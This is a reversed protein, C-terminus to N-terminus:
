GSTALGLLAQRVMAVAPNHGPGDIREIMVLEREIPPSIPVIRIHAPRDGVVMRPVIAAGLGAAVASRITELTDVQMARHPELREAAFWGAIMSRLNAFRPETVMPQEAMFQPTAVDPLDAGGDPLIAVLPDSLVPTSRLDTLDVPMAVIALDLANEQVLQALDPSGAVSVSLQLTPNGAKLARLTPGALYALTAPTLGVRVEGAANTKLRRMVVLAAEHESLIRRARDLLAEGAATLRPKRGERILLPLGVRAELERIQLSIAPQTLNLVKAANTFGERDVVTVFTLLQDPNLNRM